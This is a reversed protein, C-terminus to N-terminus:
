LLSGRFIRFSAFIGTKSERKKAGKATLFASIGVSAARM